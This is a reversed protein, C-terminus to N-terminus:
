SVEIFSGTASVKNRDNSFVHFISVFRVYDVFSPLEFWQPVTLLCATLLVGDYQIRPRENPILPLFFIDV